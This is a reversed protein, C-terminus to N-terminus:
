HQYIGRRAIKCYLFSWSIGPSCLFEVYLELYYTLCSRVLTLKCLVCWENRWSVRQSAAMKRALQCVEEREKQKDDRWRKV